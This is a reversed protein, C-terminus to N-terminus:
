GLARVREPAATALGYLARANGGFLREASVESISTATIGIIQALLATRNRGLHITRGHTALPKRRATLKRDQM